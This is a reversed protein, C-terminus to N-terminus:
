LLSFWFRKFLSSSQLDFLEKTLKTKASLYMDCREKGSPRRVDQKLENGTEYFYRDFAM